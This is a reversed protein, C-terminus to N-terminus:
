LRPGAHLNVVMSSIWPQAMRTGQTGWKFQIQAKLQMIWTHVLFFHIIPSPNFIFIYWILFVAVGRCIQKASDTQLSWNRWFM